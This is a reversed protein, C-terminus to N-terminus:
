QQGIDLGGTFLFVMRAKIGKGRSKAGGEIRGALKEVAGVLDDELGSCRDGM